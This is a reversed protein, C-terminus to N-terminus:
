QQKISEFYKKVIKQYSAPIKEERLASEESDQNLTAVTDKGATSKKNLGFNRIEVYKQEGQKDWKSKLFLPDSGAKEREGKYQQEYQLKTRDEVYESKGYKKTDFNQPGVDQNTT